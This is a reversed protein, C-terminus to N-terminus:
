AKVSGEPIGPRLILGVCGPAGCRCRWLARLDDTFPEDTLINYDYTLEEGVRIDRMAQIVIRDKRRDGDDDEVLLAECNPDCSHNIWRAENGGIAGEIVWEDNLTFLFTHGDDEEDGEAERHSILMGEYYIIEEEVRIPVAAFVGAGHIPSHRVDVKSSM